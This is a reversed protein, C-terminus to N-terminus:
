PCLSWMVLDQVLGVHPPPLFLADGLACIGLAVVYICLLSIALRYVRPKKEGLIIRLLVNNEIYYRVVADPDSQMEQQPSIRLPADVTLM